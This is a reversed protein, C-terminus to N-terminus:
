FTCMNTRPPERPEPVVPKQETQVFNAQVGDHHRKTQNSIVPV